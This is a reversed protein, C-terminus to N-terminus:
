LNELHEIFAEGLPYSAEVKESRKAAFSSIIKTALVKGLQVGEQDFSNINWAFGEFAAKHEFFSFLAGLAQPTLRKGLLIHSPRNGPFTKNPNSDIKGTALAIAQSFLNALLKERSTTNEFEFDEGCQGELYGIFEVPIISTGQHILQFFSHQANTGPEGWIVAGTQYDIEQGQRNIRKGNSEMDVQQFHAAYRSLPQSYPILALTPYGLFNHNWIGILAALLPLNKNIERNLAVKDMSNAGKLFEWYVEFGFAYSLMVGGVMSSASFRGGVWDWIYFSELYEEPNDMPSGKGTISIFHNQPKLGTKLFRDKVFQENTLTELTKGSKSVVGILCKSLDLERLVNAVDDPDINSIFHVNRNPKILHQLALFNARPGLDSGGIAIMVLDTFRNEQDLRRIFRQLKEIEQKAEAAAQKAATSSNPSDFFDRLSTHLVARNESPFGEICNLIMGSQMKEMYEVLKAENAFDDLAQMVEDTVKETGYLIKYGCAEACFKKIRAPTLNEEKALDFPKQALKHLKKSAKYDTFPHLAQQKV